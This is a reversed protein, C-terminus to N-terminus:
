GRKVPANCHPCVVDNASFLRSCYACEQAPGGGPTTQVEGLADVDLVVRGKEQPDVFVPVVKGAQVRPLYIEPVAAVIRVGYPKVVGRKVKLTLDLKAGTKGLKLVVAQAALGQARIREQEAEDQEEARELGRAYRMFGVALLLPPLLLISIWVFLALALVALVVIVILTGKM